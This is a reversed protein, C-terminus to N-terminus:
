LAVMAGKACGMDSITQGPCRVTAPALCEFAQSINPHLRAFGRLPKASTAQLSITSSCNLNRTRPRGLRPCSPHGDPWGLILHNQSFSGHSKVRIQKCPLMLCDVCESGDIAYNAPCNCSYNSDFPRLKHFHHEDVPCECDMVSKSGNARTTANEPCRTCHPANPKDSFTNEKTELQIWHYSEGM